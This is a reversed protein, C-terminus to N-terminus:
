PKAGLQALVADAIADRAVEIMRYRPEYYPPAAPPAAEAKRVAEVLAPEVQVVHRHRIPRGEAAAADHEETTHGPILCHLCAGCNKALIGVAGDTDSPDVAVLGLADLVLGIQQMRMQDWETNGCQEGSRAITVYDSERRTADLVAVLRRVARDRADSM